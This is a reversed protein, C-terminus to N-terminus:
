SSAEVRGTLPTVTITVTADDLGPQTLTASGPTATGRAYFWIYHSTSRDPVIAGPDPTGPAFVLSGKCATSETTDAFTVESPNVNSSFQKPIETCIGTDPDYEVLGWDMSGEQLRAGFVLPHSESVVQEQMAKLQSIMEDRGGYLSQNLWYNRLPEAGLTLVLGLLVMVFMMEVLSFGREDSVVRARGLRVLREM